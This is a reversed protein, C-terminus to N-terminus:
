EITDRPGFIRQHIIKRPNGPVAMEPIGAPIVNIEGQNEITGTLDIHHKSGQKM